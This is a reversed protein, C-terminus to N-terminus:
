NCGCGGGAGGEGGAAGEQVGYVHAEAPAMGEDTSMTPHALKARQHARVTTCGTAFSVIVSAVLLSTRSSSPMKM